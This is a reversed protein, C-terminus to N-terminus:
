NKEIQEGGFENNNNEIMESLHKAFEVAQIAVVSRTEKGICKGLLEKEGFVKLEINNNRCMGLFKSKTRGSADNAVIVLKARGSKLNRECAEEGSITKGAKAALGLFAYIKNNTM